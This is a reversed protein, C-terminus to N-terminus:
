LAPKKLVFLQDGLFYSEYEMRHAIMAVSDACFFSVHTQDDKYWWRKFVEVAQPHEIFKDTMGTSFIIVGGPELIKDLEGLEEWLNPLHEVVEVGIVLNFLHPYEQDKLYGHEMPELPTVDYGRSRLELTIGGSGSGYDLIREPKVFRNAVDLLVDSQQKFFAPDVERWQKKYHEESGKEDAMEETFILFCVPCKYFTRTDKYFEESPIGCVRCKVKIEVDM